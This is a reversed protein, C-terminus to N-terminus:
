SQAARSDLIAEAMPTLIALVDGPPDEVELVFAEDDAVLVTLVGDGFWAGRGLGPVEDGRSGDAAREDLGAEQYITLIIGYEEGEQEVIWTCDNWAPEYVADGTIALGQREIVKKPLLECLADSKFDMEKRGRATSTTTVDNGTTATTDDGADGGSGSGCAAISCGLVLATVAARVTSRVPM